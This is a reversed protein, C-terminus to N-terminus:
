RNEGLHHHLFRNQLIGGEVGKQLSAGSQAHRPLEELGRKILVQEAKHDSGGVGVHGVHNHTGLHFLGEGNILVVAVHEIGLILTTGVM